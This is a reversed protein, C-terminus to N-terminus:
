LKELASLLANEKQLGVMQNVVNGDKFILITPISM